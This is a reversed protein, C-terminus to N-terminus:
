DKNSDPLLGYVFVGICVSVCMRMCLVCGCYVTFSSVLFSYFVGGTFSVCICYFLLIVPSTALSCNM